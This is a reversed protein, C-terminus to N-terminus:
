KTIEKIQKNKLKDNSINKRPNSDSNYKKDIDSNSEIGSSYSM